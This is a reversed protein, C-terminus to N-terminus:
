GAVLREFVERHRDVWPRLDFRLARTRAAPSYDALGAAVRTVGKALEEPDPPHDRDWDLPAPVGVGADDGVLEPTGGSASYVVPLGCAM